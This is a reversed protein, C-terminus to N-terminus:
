PGGREIIMGAHWPLGSKGDGVIFARQGDGVPAIGEPELTLCKRASDTIVPEPAAGPEGTWTYIGFPESGEGAAGAVIWYRKAAPDWELSRIGRGGLDLLMPTATQAPQPDSSALGLAAVANNVPIIMAKGQVLPSRLGLLLANGDRSISLGEINLGREGVLTLDAAGPASGQARISDRLAPGWVTAANESGLARLQEKLSTNVKVAAAPSYTGDKYSVAMLVEREPVVKGKGKSRSHSGILVLMELPQGDGDPDCRIITMGELDDVSYAPSVSERLSSSAAAISLWRTSFSAVSPTENDVVLLRSGLLQCASAEPYGTNYFEVGPQKLADPLLPAQAAAPLLGTLCLLLTFKMM